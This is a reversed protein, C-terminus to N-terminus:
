FWDRGDSVMGLGNFRGKDFDIRSAKVAIPFRGKGAVMKLTNQKNLSFGISKDSQKKLANIAKTTIKETSNIEAVLHAATVIGTIVLINNRNAHRLLVPNPHLFDASSFFATLDGIPVMEAMTQEFSISVSTGSGIAQSFDITPLGTAQMWEQVVTIGIQFAYDNKHTSKVDLGADKTTRLRVDSHFAHNIHEYYLEPANAGAKLWLQLLKHNRIPGDILDYGAERLHHQLSTTPM